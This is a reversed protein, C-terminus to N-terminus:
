CTPHCTQTIKPLGSKGEVIEKILENDGGMALNEKQLHPKQLLPQRRTSHRESDQRKVWVITHQLVLKHVAKLSCM